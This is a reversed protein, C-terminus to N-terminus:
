CTTTVSSINDDVVHRIFVICYFVGAIGTAGRTREAEVDQCNLSEKFMGKGNPRDNYGYEKDQRPLTGKREKTSVRVIANDIAQHREKM